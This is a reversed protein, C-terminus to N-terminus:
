PMVLIDLRRLYYQNLNVQYKRSVLPMYGPMRYDRYQFWWDGVDFSVTTPSTNTEPTDLQWESTIASIYPSNTPPDIEPVAITPVDNLIVPIEVNELPGTNM